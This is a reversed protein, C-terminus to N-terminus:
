KARPTRGSMRPNPSGNYQARLPAIRPDRNAIRPEPSPCFIGETAEAKARLAGALSATAKASATLRFAPTFTAFFCLEVFPRAFDRLLWFADALVDLVAFAPAVDLVARRFLAARAAADRDVPRLGAAPAFFVAAFFPAAFFVVALFFVAL